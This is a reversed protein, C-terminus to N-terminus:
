WHWIFSGDTSSLSACQSAVQQQPFSVVSRSKSWRRLSVSEWCRLQEVIGTVLLMQSHDHLQTERTGALRRDWQM